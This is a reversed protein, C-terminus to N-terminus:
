SQGLVLVQSSAYMYTDWVQHASVLVVKSHRESSPTDWLECRDIVGSWELQLHYCSTDCSLM